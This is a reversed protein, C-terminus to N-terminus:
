PSAASDHRSIVEVLCAASPKSASVGTIGDDGGTKDPGRRAWRLAERLPCGPGQHWALALRLLTGILLVAVLAAWTHERRREESM